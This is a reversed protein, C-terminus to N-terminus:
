KQGKLLAALDCTELHCPGLTGDRRWLGVAGCAPCLRVDTGIAGNWEIRRLLNLAESAPGMGHVHALQAVILRAVGNVWEPSLICGAGDRLISEIVNCIFLFRESSNSRGRLETWDGM